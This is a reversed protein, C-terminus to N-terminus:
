ITMMMMVLMTRTVVYMIIMLMIKFSGRTSPCTPRRLVRWLCLISKNKSWIRSHLTSGPYLIAQFIHKFPHAACNTNITLNISPNFLSISNGNFKILPSKSQLLNFCLQNGWRRPWILLWRLAEKTIFPFLSIFPFLYVFLCVFDILLLEIKFFQVSPSPNM